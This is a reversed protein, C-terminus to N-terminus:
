QVAPLWRPDGTRNVAQESSGSVSFDGNAADTFNPDSIIVNGSNDYGSADDFAGANMYTNYSFSLNSAPYSSANRGGLFRRCIQPACEAFICKNIQWCSTKQGAYGNYNGWQKGACIGYFTSSIYNISNSTFGARSARASGNWQVFYNAIGGVNWITSNKVTLDNVFGQNAYFYATGSILSTNCNIVCNNVLFTQVCYKKKNDYFIGGKLGYINCGQVSMADKIIYYGGTGLIDPNPNASMTILSLANSESADIDLYKINVAASTGFTSTGAMTLKSHSVKGGKIVVAQNGFDIAGSMTYQGNPELEYILQTGVSDAPIPNSTFYETIDTGSPIVKYSPLSTSFTKETSEADKNNLASDGMAKLVVKYNTEDERARTVSCGDVFQNEAGVVVPKDPDDVNYLTFQYGGAGYVVPWSFTLTAGDTSSTVSISDALPSKLTSNTVSSTWKENDTYADACSYFFLSAVLFCFADFIKRLLFNKRM